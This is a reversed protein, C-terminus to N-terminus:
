SGLAWCQSCTCPSRHAALSCLPQQPRAHVPVFDQGIKLTPACKSAWPALRGPFVSWSQQTHAGPGQVIAEATRLRATVRQFAPAVVCWSQTPSEPLRCAPLALIAGPEPWQQQTVWDHGGRKRGWPSYGVLSRQGHSKGPLSLTTLQWKRRWPINRVWPNFSGVDGANAPPNKVM